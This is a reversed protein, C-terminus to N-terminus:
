EQTVTMTQTVQKQLSYSVVTKGRREEGSRENQFELRPISGEASATPSSRVEKNDYILSKIDHDTDNTTIKSDDEDNANDIEKCLEMITELSTGKPNMIMAKYDLRDGKMRIDDQCTQVKCSVEDMENKWYIRDDDSLEHAFDNIFQEVNEIFLKKLSEIHEMQQKLVKSDQKPVPIKIELIASTLNLKETKLAQERNARDSSPYSAMIDKIIWDVSSYSKDQPQDSLRTRWFANDDAYSSWNGYSDWMQRWDSGLPSISPQPTMVMRATSSRSPHSESERSSSRSVPSRPSLRALVSSLDTIVVESQSKDDGDDIDRSIEDLIEYDLGSSRGQMTDVKVDDTKEKKNKKYKCLLAFCFLFCIFAIIGGIVFLSFSWDFETSSFASNEPSTPTFNFDTTIRNDTWLSQEATYKSTETYSTTSSTELTTSTTSTLTSTSTSTSTTILPTSQSTTSRITTLVTDLTTQETTINPFVIKEYSTTQEELFRPKITSTIIDETVIQTDEGEEVLSVSTPNGQGAASSNM